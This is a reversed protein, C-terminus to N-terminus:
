IWFNRMWGTGQRIIGRKKVDVQRIKQLRGMRMWRREPPIAVRDGRRGAEGLADHAVVFKDPDDAAVGDPVGVADGVGGWGSGEDEGLGAEGFGVAPVGVGGCAVGIEMEVEDAGEVFGQRGRRRQGTM